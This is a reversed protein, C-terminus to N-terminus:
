NQVAVPSRALRLGAAEQERDPQVGARTSYRCNKANNAYSGGRRVKKDGTEPGRPDNVSEKGYPAYWDEVWEWVNGKMDYLGWANPPFSGVSAVGRYPDGPSRGLCNAPSPDDEDGPRGARAAYEWEASTPRRLGADPFQAQLMEVLQRAEDWTLGEVPYFRDNGAPQPEGIIQAYQGRTLEFAGLCFGATLTVPHAPREAEAKPSGQEFSGPPVFVFSLELDSIPPCRSDHPVPPPTGPECDPRNVWGWLALSAALIVGGGIVWPRGPPLLTFDKEELFLVPVSWDGLRPEVKQRAKAMAQTLCKRDRVQAYFHKALSVAGPDSIERRMAVVARAGSVILGEALGAFPQTSGRGGHCVNLFVFPVPSRLVSPLESSTLREGGGTGNELWLGGEEGEFDGHGFFHVVDFGPEEALAESLSSETAHELSRIEGVEGLADQIWVMEQNLDLKQMNAPCAGVLLIRIKGAAPLNAKEIAPAKILRREISTRNLLALTNGEPGVLAEWPLNVAEPAHDFSFRLRFWSKRRRAHRYTQDFAVLVDGQFVLSFLARGQDTLAKLISRDRSAKQRRLDRWDSQGPALEGQDPLEFVHSGGTGFPCSAVSARFQRGTTGHGSIRIELEISGM